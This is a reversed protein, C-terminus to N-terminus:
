EFSLEIKEEPHIEEFEDDFIAPAVLEFKKVYNIDTNKLEWFITGKSKVKGLMDSKIEGDLYSMSTEAQENTDTIIESQDIFYETPEDSLNELEIEAYLINAKEGDKYENDLTM